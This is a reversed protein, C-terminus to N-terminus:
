LIISLAVNIIKTGASIGAAVLWPLPMQKDNGMPGTQTWGKIKTLLHM